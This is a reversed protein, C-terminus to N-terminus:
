RAVGQPDVYRVYVRAAGDVTHVQVDYTGDRFDVLKGARISGAFGGAKKYTPYTRIVAWQGPRERLAPIGPRSWWGPRLAIPPGGGRLPHAPM